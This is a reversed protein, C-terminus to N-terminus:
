LYCETNAVVSLNGPFSAVATDSKFCVEGQLLEYSSNCNQTTCHNPAKTKISQSYKKKQNKSSLVVM